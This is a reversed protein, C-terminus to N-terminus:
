LSFDWRSGGIPVRRFIKIGEKRPLPLCFRRVVESPEFRPM